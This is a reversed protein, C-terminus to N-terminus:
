APEVTFKWVGNKKERFVVDFFAHNKMLDFRDVLETVIREVEKETTDRKPIVIVEYGVIMPEYKFKLEYDGIDVSLRNVQM